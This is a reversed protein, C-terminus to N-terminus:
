GPQRLARGAAPRGPRHRGAHGRRHLRPRRLGRGDGAVAVLRDVEKVRLEGVDSFVTTGERWRPPWRSPRSRTSRRSRAPTCRPPACLAPWRGSRRPGPTARSCRSRRAWESCSASMASGRRGTTSAAVDVSSGPVVCGAVAFFASASPDGPVTRDVPRLSSARVRVIRGDGWPEVTLDAGAEALMEETHTRTTVAERVITTGEASLGALIIASKVQASVVKSTWDIGHLAGGRVRLPPQCRTAAAPSRRVWSSSRSPWATWPGVRSRRTM